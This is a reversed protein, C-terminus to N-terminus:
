CYDVDSDLEELAATVLPCDDADLNNLAVVIDEDPIM